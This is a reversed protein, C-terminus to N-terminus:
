EEIEADDQDPSPKVTRRFKALVDHTKLLEALESKSLNWVSASATALEVEAESFQPSLRRSVALTHCRKSAKVVARHFPSKPDYKLGQIRAVDTTFYRQTQVGVSSCYLAVRAPISNLLGACFYAEDQTDANIFLATHDPIVPKDAFPRADAANVVACQFFESLDKFAVKFEGRTYNGINGIAYFEPRKKMLLKYGSRNRLDTEIEKFYEFAKHGDRKLSSLSVPAGFTEESHPVIITGNPRACWETVDRGRLLPYLFRSEISRQRTELKKKGSDGKNRIVSTKSGVQMVDVWYASNLWTCTGAFTREYLNANQDGIVRALPTIVSEPVTLWPSLVDGPEVPRASWELVQIQTDFDDFGTEPVSARPVKPLWIRYPIPYTTPLGKIVVLIATRNIAGEFPLFLSMDTVSSVKIPKNHALMWRRFGANSGSKLVTQTVIFGLKGGDSLYADSAAYVFLASLEKKVNGLKRAAGGNDRLRYGDWIPLTSDRYVKPLSEWNVWPPNGVVYDVKGIFLPAFSNKIIRAWVGNKNAKDLAVLQKYLDSHLRAKTMPLGDAECRELFEKPSYANKVCFELAEAYKGVETASSAIEVPVIFRAAATKLEKSAGTEGAFLGGYSSPTLISDCLYVPIEVKDLGSMLGRIAILYNTRAAMVALPNLDFGICNALIKRCLDAEEYGCKERNHDYWARIRNIALVLFTGSGCAPDLIRKDPDGDYGVENLTHDALWDPTYYEGLDHRVKKPFLEQYLKKLLDRSVTPEEALTQPNYEDLKDVMAKLFKFIEDSWVPLYWAFLDGELFNTIGHHRFVAGQELEDMEHRFKAPTIAAHLKALPGGTDVGHYKAVVGAALLKMFVAYYTHVAFLLEASHVKGRIGYSKGLVKMKDTPDDVDYGCVEGFLIKWQNFFTQAKPHKAALIAEYLVRVGNQALPSEAGFDGALYEPTYAKGRQGLNFLAWLFREASYKDLDVPSQVDWKKDRWRIFVFRFGDCGVGFLSEIPHGLETQLARFRVKIQEVVKKTGPSELTDGIRDAPNAPNKYEVIVRNYVSDPRGEAITCNHKGGFTIGAAKELFLLQSAAAIQVDMESGAMAAVARVRLAFEAAHTSIMKDLSEGAPM